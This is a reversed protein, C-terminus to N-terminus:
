AAASKKRATSVGIGAKAAYWRICAPSTKAEPFRERVAALVAQTDTNGAELQEMVFKGVGMGRVKKEGKVPDAKKPVVAEAKAVVAAVRKRLDAVKGGWKKIPKAGAAAANQNHLEVLAKSDMTEIAKKDM